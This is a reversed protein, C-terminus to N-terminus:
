GSDQSGSSEANFLSSELNEDAEVDLSEESGSDDRRPPFGWWDIYRKVQSRTAYLPYEYTDGSVRCFAYDFESQLRIKTSSLDCWALVDAKSVITGNPETWDTDAGNEVLARMLGSLGMRILTSM